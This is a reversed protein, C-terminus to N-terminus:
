VLHELTLSFGVRLLTSGQEDRVFPTMKQGVLIKKVSIADDKYFADVLDERFREVVEYARLNLQWGLTSRFALISYVYAALWDPTRISFQYQARAGHGFRIRGISTREHCMAFLDPSTGKSRNFRHSAESDHSVGFGSDLFTRIIYQGQAMRFLNLAQDLKADLSRIDDKRLIIKASTIKRRRPDALQRQFEDIMTQLEDLISRARAVYKQLMGSNWASDPLPSAAIQDETDKLFIEFEQLQDAKLLLTAPVNKVENWLKKLKISIGGVKATIDVVAIVSAAIGFAEAM